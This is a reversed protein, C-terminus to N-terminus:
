QRRLTFSVISPWFKVHGTDEDRREKTGHPWFSSLWFSSREGAWGVGSRHLMGTHTHPSPAQKIFPM